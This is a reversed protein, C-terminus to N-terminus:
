PDVFISIVSYNDSPFRNEVTHRIEQAFQYATPSKDCLVRMERLSLLNYAGDSALIIRDGPQIKLLKQDIRPEGRMGLASYLVNKRPYQAYEERTLLGEALLRRAESHEETLKKIGTGRILYIGTDGSHVITAGRSDILIASLTTAMNVCRPDMTQEHVIASHIRHAIKDLKWDRFELLENGLIEIAILSAKMGGYQGGVGDAIAACLTGDDLDWVAVADQNEPRPGEDSFSAWTLKM